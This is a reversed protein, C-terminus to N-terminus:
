DAPSGEYDASEPDGAAIGSASAAGPFAPARAPVRVVHAGATGTGAPDTGAPGTGTGMPGTGAPGTGTGMPGTGAPVTGTGMPGTGAADTGTPGTGAPSTGATEAASPGTGAPTMGSPATGASMGTAARDSLEATVDRAPHDSVLGIFFSSEGPAASGAGAPVGSPEFEITLRNGALTVRSPRISGIAGQTTVFVGAPGSGDFNLEVVPGFDLSLTHIAPAPPLPAIFRSMDIRYEYAFKGAAITGAVGKPFLRSQLFGSGSVGMLPIPPAIDTVQIHGSPDFVLNIDPARVEVVRLDRVVGTTPIPPMVSSM